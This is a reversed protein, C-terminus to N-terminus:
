RMLACFIGWSCSCVRVPATFRDGLTLLELFQAAPPTVEPTVSADTDTSRILGHGSFIRSLLDQDELVAWEGLADPPSLADECESKPDPDSPSAAWTPQAGAWLGALSVFASLTLAVFIFAIRDFM